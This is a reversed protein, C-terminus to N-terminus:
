SLSSSVFIPGSFIRPLLCHKYDKFLRHRVSSDRRLSINVGANQQFSVTRFVYGILTPELFHLLVMEIEKM